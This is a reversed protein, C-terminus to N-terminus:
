GNDDGERKMIYQKANGSLLVTEHHFDHVTEFGDNNLFGHQKLSVIPGAGTVMLLTQEM